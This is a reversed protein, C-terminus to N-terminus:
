RHALDVLPHLRVEVRGAAEVGPAIRAPESPDSIANQHIETDVDVFQVRAHLAPEAQRRTGREPDGAVLGHRRAAPDRQHALNLLVVRGERRLHDRRELRADLTTTTFRGARGTHRVPPQHLAGALREDVLAHGGTPLSERQRREIMRAEQAGSGDGEADRLAEVDDGLAEAQGGGNGETM